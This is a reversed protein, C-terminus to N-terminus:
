PTACGRVAEQARLARRNAPAALQAPVARTPACGRTSASCRSPTASSRCAREVDAGFLLRGVVRLTVRSMEPTSISRRGPRTAEHWRPALTEAEAGMGEAYGAIRKRTFLPQVFRRQRRWREDQSNLLGDGLAWRLERYFRSDKRYRDAETAMVHRVADPHFFAYTTRACARRAPRSLVVVDGCERRAREFTGLVDRRLDALLGLGPRGALSPHQQAWAKEWVSWM